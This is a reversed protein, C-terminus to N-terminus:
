YLLNKHDTFVQVPDKAGELYVRWTRFAEVVALLEKDHVDYNLEPGTMKRSYYAVPRKKGDDGKQTLIASIAFDSADTELISQREPDHFVLVPATMLRHKLAEFAEKCEKRFAFATDKKTLNNLPAAMHGFNGIFKRYYNLLGLFAQVEKVTTPEPWDKISKVKQPDPSLGKESVTYGLFSIIHKHFECKSLKVLLDKERLKSLVKRVHQVHQEYTTSFILVDDLYALAFDNLFERLTDNILAQFSAPANTLRFPM